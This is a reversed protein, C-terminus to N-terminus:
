MSGGPIEPVTVNGNGPNVDSEVSSLETFVTADMEVVEMEPREYKM